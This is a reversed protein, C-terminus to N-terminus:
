RIFESSQQSHEITGSNTDAHVTSCDKLIFSLSTIRLSSNRSPRMPSPWRCDHRQMCPHLNLVGRVGKKGAQFMDSGKRTGWFTSHRSAFCPNRTISCVLPSTSFNIFSDHEFPTGLSEAMIGQLDRYNAVGVKTLVVSTTYV